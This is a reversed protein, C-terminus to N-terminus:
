QNRFAVRLRVASTPGVFRCVPPNSVCVHLWTWAYLATRVARRACEVSDHPSYKSSALIILVPNTIPLLFSPPLLLSLSQAQLHCFLAKLSRTPASKVFVCVCERACEGVCLRMLGWVPVNIYSCRHPYAEAKSLNGLSFESLCQLHCQLQPRLIIPSSILLM